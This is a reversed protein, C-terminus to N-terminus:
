GINDVLCFETRGIFRFPHTYWKGISLVTIYTDKGVKLM